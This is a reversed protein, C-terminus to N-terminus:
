MYINYNFILNLDVFIIKVYNSEWNEKDELGLDHKELKEM